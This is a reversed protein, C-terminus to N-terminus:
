NFNIENPRTFQSASELLMNYLQLHQAYLAQLELRLRDIEKYAYRGEHRTAICMKVDRRLGSLRKSIDSICETIQRVAEETGEEVIVELEHLLIDTDDNKM